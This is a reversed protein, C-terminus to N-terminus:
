DEDSEGKVEPGPQGASIWTLYSTIVNSKGKASKSDAEIGAFACYDAALQRQEAGDEFAALAVAAEAETPFLVPGDELEVAFQGFVEQIESM